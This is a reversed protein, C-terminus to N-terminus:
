FRELFVGLLEPYYEEFNKYINRHNDYFEYRELILPIYKYGCFLDNNLFKTAMDDLHCKKLLHISMARVLHENICEQWDGYGSEFNPLKYAKLLEYADKYKETVASYKETLPNIFPHSYEHFLVGPSLSFSDTSFVSFMDATLTEQNIFSIGYNGKMLCSLIYNYSNQIKGYEQELLSIFPYKQLEQKIQAVVPSYYKKIGEHFRFFSSKDAFIKLEELLQNIMSFGGCYEVCLNSPTFQMKFNKSNGLSLMLEVPRSFTFGKPIMSEILKYVKEDHYGEFFTIIASTYENIEETMLGYGVFSSTIENYKSTLLISNIFELYPNVQVIFQKIISVDKQM